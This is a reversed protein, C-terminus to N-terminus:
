QGLGFEERFMSNYQPPSGKSQRPRPLGYEMPPQPPPRPLVDELPVVNTLGRNFRRAKRLRWIYFLLGCIVIGFLGLLLVLPVLAYGGAKFLLPIECDCSPCAPSLTVTPASTPLTAAPGSMIILPSVEVITSIQEPTPTSSLTLTVTETAQTPTPSPVQVTETMTMTGVVVSSVPLASPAVQGVSSLITETSSEAITTVSLDTVTRDPPPGPLLALPSMSVITTSPEVSTVTVSITFDGNNPLSM